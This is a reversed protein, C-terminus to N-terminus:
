YKLDENYFGIKLIVQTIIAQEFSNQCHLDLAEWKIYLFSGRFLKARKNKGKFILELTFSSGPYLNMALFQKQFVKLWGTIHM